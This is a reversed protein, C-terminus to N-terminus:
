SIRGSNQGGDIINIALISVTDESIKSKSSMRYGPVWLVHDGDALVFMEDRENKPIKVDTMFKSLMKKCVKGDMDIFIHDDKRRHRFVTTQIRDCDFWKTYTDSHIAGEPKGKFIKLIATGLGPIELTTYSIEDLGGAM